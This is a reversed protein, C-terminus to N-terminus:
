GEEEGEAHAQAEDEDEFATLCEPCKWEGTEVTSANGLLSENHGTPRLDGDEVTYGVEHPVRELQQVVDSTCEERSPRDRGINDNSDYTHAM